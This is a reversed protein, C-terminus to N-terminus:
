QSGGPRRLAGGSSLSRSAIWRAAVPLMSQKTAAAGRLSAPAGAGRALARMIAEARNSYAFNFRAIIEAFSSSLRAPESRRISAFAYDATRATSKVPDENAFTTLDSEM